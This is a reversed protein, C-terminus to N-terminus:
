NRPFMAAESSRSPHPSSSMGESDDGKSPSTPPSVAITAAAALLTAAFAIKLCTSM